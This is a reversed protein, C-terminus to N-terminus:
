AYAHLDCSARPCSPDHLSSEQMPVGMPACLCCPGAVTPVAWYVGTPQRRSHAVHSRALSVACCMYRTVIHPRALPQSSWPQSLQARGHM